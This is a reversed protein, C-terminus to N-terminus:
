QLARRLMEGHARTAEQLVVADAAQDALFAAVEDIRDNGRWLNFTVVRLARESGATAQPAADQIAAASLWLNIALVAAAAAILRLDRAFFALVLLLLTGAM